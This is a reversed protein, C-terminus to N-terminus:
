SHSRGYTDRTVEIFAAVFVFAVVVVVPLAVWHILFRMANMGFSVM